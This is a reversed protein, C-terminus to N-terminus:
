CLSHLYLIRVETTDLPDGCAARLIGPADVREEQEAETWGTKWGESDRLRIAFMKTRPCLSAESRPLLNSNSHHISKVRCGARTRRAAHLPAEEPKTIYDGKGIQKNACKPFLCRWGKSTFNKGSHQGRVARKEPV